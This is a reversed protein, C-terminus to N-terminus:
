FRITLVTVSLGLVPSLIFSGKPLIENLKQSKPRITFYITIYFHNIDKALIYKPVNYLKRQLQLLYAGVVPCIIQEM